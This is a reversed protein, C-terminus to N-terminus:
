TGKISHDFILFVLTGAPIAAAYPVPTQGFPWEGLWEFDGRSEHLIALWRKASSHDRRPNLRLQGEEIQVKVWDTGDFEILHERFPDGGALASYPLRPSIKLPRSSKLGFHRTLWARVDVDSTWQESPAGREREESFHPAPPSSTEASPSTQGSPFSQLQLELLSRRLSEGFTWSGDSPEARLLGFLRPLGHRIGIGCFPLQRLPIFRLQEEISVAHHQGPKFAFDRWSLQITPDLDRLSGYGLASLHAGVMPHERWRQLGVAVALWVEPSAQIDCFEDAEDETSHCFEEWANLIPEEPVSLTNAMAACLEADDVTLPLVAVIPRQRKERKPWGEDGDRVSASGRIPLLFELPDTEPWKSAAAGDELSCILVPLLGFQNAAEIWQRRGEDFRGDEVIMFRTLETQGGGLPQRLPMTWNYWHGPLEPQAEGQHGTVRALVRRTIAYTKIHMDM